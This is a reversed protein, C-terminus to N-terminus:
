AGKRKRDSLSVVGSPGPKAEQGDAEVVHGHEGPLRWRLAARGKPNLGLRDQLQRIESSVAPTLDLAMLECLQLVAWRDAVSWAVAPGACWLSRWTDAVAQSSPARPPEPPRGTRREPLNRWEGPKNARRANPNPLSHGGM